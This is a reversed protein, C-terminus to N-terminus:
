SYQRVKVPPPQEASAVRPRKMGRRETLSASTLSTSQAATSQTQLWESSSSLKSVLEAELSKCQRKLNLYKNVAEYCPRKCVYGTHLESGFDIQNEICLSVLGDKCQKSEVSQLSRRNKKDLVAGCCVKCRDMISNWRELQFNNHLM